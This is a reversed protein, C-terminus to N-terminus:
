PKLDKPFLSFFVIPELLGRMVVFLHQLEYM